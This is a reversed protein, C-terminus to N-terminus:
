KLSFSFTMYQSNFEPNSPIFLPLTYQCFIDLLINLLTHGSPTNRLTNQHPHFTLTPPHHLTIVSRRMLLYMLRIPQPRSLPKQVLPTHETLLNDQILKYIGSLVLSFKM